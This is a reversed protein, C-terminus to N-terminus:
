WNTKRLQGNIKRSRFNQLKREWEGWGEASMGEFMQIFGNVIVKADLLHPSGFHDHTNLRGDKGPRGRKESGGGDGYLFAGHKWNSLDFSQLWGQSREKEQVGAGIEHCFKPARSEFYIWCEGDGSSGNLAIGCRGEGPCQPFGESGGEKERQMEGYLLRQRM